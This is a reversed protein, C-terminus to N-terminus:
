QPAANRDVWVIQRQNPHIRNTQEQIVSSTQQPDFYRNFNDRVRDVRQETQEVEARVQALKEQQAQHYPILKALASVAATALLLNVGLKVTAELALETVQRNPSRRVPRKSRAPRQSNRQTPTISSESQPLDPQFARLASM